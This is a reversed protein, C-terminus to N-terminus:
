ECVDLVFNGEGFREKLLKLLAAGDVYRKDLIQIQKTM